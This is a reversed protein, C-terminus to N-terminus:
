SGIPVQPIPVGGGIGINLTNGLFNVLGWVAVMVFLGIIGYVMLNRGSARKEEDAGAMVYNVIGWFFVVVAVGILLATLTEVWGGVSDFFGGLTGASGPVTPPTYQALAVFPSLLALVASAKLLSKM